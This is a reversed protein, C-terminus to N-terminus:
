WGRRGPRQAPAQRTDRTSALADVAVPRPQDVFLAEASDEHREVAAPEVDADGHAHPSHARASPAPRLGGPPRRPGTLSRSPGGVPSRSPGILGFRDPLLLASDGLEHWLYGDAAAADYARPCSRARRRGRGAATRRRRTM